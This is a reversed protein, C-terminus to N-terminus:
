SSNRLLLSHVLSILCSVLSFGLGWYSTVSDAPPLFVEYVPSTPASTSTHLGVCPSHRTVQSNKERPHLPLLCRQREQSQVTSSHLPPPQSEMVLTSPRSHSQGTPCFCDYTVMRAEQVLGRTPNMCMPKVDALGVASGSWRLKGKGVGSHTMLDSSSGTELFQVAHIYMYMYVHVHVYMYM